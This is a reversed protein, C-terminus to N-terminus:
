IEPFTWLKLLTGNKKAFRRTKKTARVQLPAAKEAAPQAVGLHVCGLNQLAGHREMTAPHRLRARTKLSTKPHHVRNM